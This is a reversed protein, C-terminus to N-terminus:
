YIGYALISCFLGHRFRSSSTDIDALLSAHMLNFADFYKISASLARAIAFGITFFDAV